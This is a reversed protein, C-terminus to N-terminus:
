HVDRLACISTRQKGRHSSSAAPSSPVLSYWWIFGPGTVFAYPWRTRIRTPYSTPCGMAMRECLTPTPHARLDKHQEDVIKEAEIVAQQWEEPTIEGDKDRDFRRKLDRPDLKWQRLLHAVDARRDMGGDGGRLTELSGIAYLTDGQMLYRANYRRDEMRWRRVHAMHVEAHDPDIVCQGTEDQLVFTEDSIRVWSRRYDSNPAAVDNIVVEYWVCAPLGNFVLPAQGKSLQATGHLEVLGQAASRIRTTPTDHILHWRRNSLYWAIAAGIIAVILGPLKAGFWLLIASILLYGACTLAQAFEARGVRVRLPAFAELFM